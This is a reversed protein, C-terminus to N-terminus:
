KEGFILENVLKSLIAVQQELVVVSHKLESLEKARARHSKIMEYHEKNKNVVLGSETDKVFGPQDTKVQM